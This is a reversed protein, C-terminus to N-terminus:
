HQRHLALLTPVPVKAKGALTPWQPLAKLHFVCTKKEKVISVTMLNGHLLFVGQRELICFMLINARTWFGARPTRCGPLLVAWARPLQSVGRRSRGLPGSLVSPTSSLRM